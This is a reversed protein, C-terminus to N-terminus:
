EHSSIKFMKPRNDCFYTGTARGDAIILLQKVLQLMDDDLAEQIAVQSTIDQPSSILLKLIYNPSCFISPYLEQQPKQPM